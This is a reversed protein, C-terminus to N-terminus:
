QEYLKYRKSINVPGDGGVAGDSWPKPSKELHGLPIVDVTVHLYFNFDM